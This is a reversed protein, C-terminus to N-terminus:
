PQFTTEHRIQTSGRQQWRRMYWALACFLVLATLFSIRIHFAGFRALWEAVSVVYELPTRAIFSLGIGLPHWLFDAAVALFGLAMAAPIIPVVLINAFLSLPGLIGTHYLLIPTTFLLASLSAAGAKRIAWIEPLKRVLTRREIDDALYLLAVTAAFSLLFGLDFRLLRPNVALMAVGALALANRPHSLRGIGKAAATLSGMIAARVVSAEAGTAIVFALILALTVPIAQKRTLGVGIIFSILVWSIITINYGSLATIHALGTTRFTDKLAPSMGSTDGYLIGALLGGFPDPFLARLHTDFKERARFLVAKATSGQGHALLGVHQPFACSASVGERVAWREYQSLPEPTCKMFLKDGFRYVPYAPVTILIKGKPASLKVVYTITKERVRPLGDVVGVISVEGGISNIIHRADPLQITQSYRFFGLFIIGVGLCYTSFKAQGFIFGLLGLAAAALFLVYWWFPEVLPKETSLFSHAAIGAIFSLCLIFVATSKKM